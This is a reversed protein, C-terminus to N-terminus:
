SIKAARLSKLTPTVRRETITLIGLAVLAREISTRRIRAEAARGHRGQDAAQLFLREEELAVRRLFAQRERSSISTRSTWTEEPTAARYGWPRATANRLVRWGELDQTAWGDGRGGRAARYGAGARLWRVTAEVSGNYAPRRPPSLLEVVGWRELLDKVEEGLFASGRDSKLVLPAGEAEFREELAERTSSATPGPSASFSLDDRSGLDRLALVAAFCGDVPEPPSLHDAAWVRGPVLWSLKRVEVPHERAYVARYERLFAVIEGRAVGQNLGRLPEVGTGPGLEDLIAKLERREESTARRVPRGRATARLAGEACRGTWHSLTRSPIGLERAAARGSGGDIVVFRGYEVARRRAEREAERRERQKETGRVTGPEPRVRAEVAAEVRELHSEEEIEILNM